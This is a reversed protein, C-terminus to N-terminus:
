GILALPVLSKPHTWASTALNKTLSSSNKTQETSREHKELAVGRIRVISCFTTRWEKAVHLIPEAIARYGTLRELSRCLERQLLWEVTQKRRLYCRGQRINSRNCDFMGRHIPQTHDNGNTRDDSKKAQGTKEVMEILSLLYHHLLVTDVTVSIPKLNRISHDDEGLDLGMWSSLWLKSGDTFFFLESKEEISGGHSVTDHLESTESSWFWFTGRTLIARRQWGTQELSSEHYSGRRTFLSIVKRPWNPWPRWARTRSPSIPCCYRAIFINSVLNWSSNSRSRATKWVSKRWCGLMRPLSCRDIRFLDSEGQQRGLAKKPASKKALPVSVQWMNIKSHCGKPVSCSM